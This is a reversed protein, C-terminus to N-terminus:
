GDAHCGPQEDVVRDTEPENCTSKVPLWCANGPVIHEVVDRKEPQRVCCDRRRTKIPVPERLGVKAGLVDGDRNRYADKRVLLILGRAAPGLPRIGVEDVVVLEVLAPVKCRPFLRLKQHILHAYPELRQPLDLYSLPRVTSPARLHDDDVAYRFRRLAQKTLNVRGESAAETDPPDDGGQHVDRQDAGEARLGQEFPPKTNAVWADAGRDM